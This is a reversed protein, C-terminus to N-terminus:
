RITVPRTTIVQDYVRSEIDSGSDEIPKSPKLIIPVYGGCAFASQNDADGLASSFAGLLQQESMTIVKQYHGSALKSYQYKYWETRTSMTFKAAVAAQIEDGLTQELCCTACVRGKFGPSSSQM